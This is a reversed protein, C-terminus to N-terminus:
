SQLPQVKTSPTRNTRHNPCFSATHDQALRNHFRGSKPKCERQSVPHHSQSQEMEMPLPHCPSVRSSLKPTERPSCSPTRGLSPLVSKLLSESDKLQSTTTSRVREMLGHKSGTVEEKEGMSPILLNGASDSAQVARMPAASPLPQPGMRMQGGSTVLFTM